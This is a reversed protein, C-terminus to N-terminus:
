PGLVRENFSRFTAVAILKGSNKSEVFWLHDGPKVNKMFYKSDATSSKIGWIGKKSSNKFNKGNGVRVIFNDDM